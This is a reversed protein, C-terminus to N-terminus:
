RAETEEPMPLVEVAVENKAKSTISGQYLSSTPEEVQRQLEAVLESAVM